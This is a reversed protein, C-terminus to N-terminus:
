PMRLRFFVAPNTTGISINTSTITDSGAIDAWNTSLGKSLSNTQMQLVWGLHTSPWSLSLTGSSVSYTINTPYNAIPSGVTAVTITGDVTLSSTNWTVTQNPTQSVVTFSGSYGGATNFLKFSDGVQLDAGSNTVVLTGGYVLPASGAELLDNIPSGGNRDVQMVVSGQLTPTSGVTFTGISNDGPALAAGSRVVVPGTITGIGGLTGNSVVTTGSYSNYGDLYLTGSGKKILGGGPSNGDESLAAPIAIVFGGDDIIAGGSQVYCSVTTALFNTPNNGSAQLTGGNFNAVSSAVANNPRVQTAQVLGGNLQLTANASANEGLWLMASNLVQGGNVILRGTANLSGVVINGVTGAKQVTGSNVTLTGDAAANNRGIVLWNNSVLLTAGAVVVSSTGANQQVWFEGSPIVVSAGNTLLLSGGNVQSAATSRLYNTGTIVAAGTGVKIISNGGSGISDIIGNWNVNGNGNGLTLVSATTSSNEIRGSGALGNITESFGNLDLTGASGINVAAATAGDPIATASSLQLTGNSVITSGTYDNGSIGLIVTGTGIKKLSTTGSIKGTGSFTYLVSNNSVTVSAPSVTNSLLVSASGIDNFMVPDGPPNAELYAAPLGAALWNTVGNAWVNALIPTSNTGTWVIGPEGTVIAYLTTNAVDNSLVATMGQPATISPNL